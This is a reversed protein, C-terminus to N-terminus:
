QEDAVAQLRAEPVSGILVQGDDTVLINLLSTHLLRGGEVPTTLQDLVESDLLGAPLQEEDLLAVTEWGTGVTEPKNGDMGDRKMDHHMMHESMDHERVTAGEPPTFDFRAADPTEPTFDTFEVSIAPEEQDVADVTIGLPVGTQADVGISVGAVLTDDTRPTLELSYADRGAIQVDEKVEVATSPDIAALFKDAVEGPTMPEANDGCGSHHNADKPMDTVTAKDVTNTASDYHWLASGNRIFDQEDMGDMVQLRLKDPKDAYVRAEHTGSVMSLMHTLKDADFEGSDSSGNDPTGTGDSSGTGDSPGTDPPGYGGVDPLQPLGLDVTATLNGSFDTDKSNEIMLLIDQPSKPDLKVRESASAAAGLAVAAILAPAAVAPIWKKAAVPKM